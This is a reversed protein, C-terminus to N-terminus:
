KQPFAEFEYIIMDNKRERNLSDQIFVWHKDKLLNAVVKLFSSTYSPKGVVWKEFKIVLKYKLGSSMISIDNVFSVKSKEKLYSNVKDIYESTTHSDIFEGMAKAEGRSFDSRGCKQCIYDGTRQGCITESILSDHPCLSEDYEYRIMQLIISVIIKRTLAVNLM